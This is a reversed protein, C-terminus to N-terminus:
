AKRRLRTAFFGDMDHRHPWTFLGLPGLLPGWDIGGEGPSPLDLGFEPRDRLFAEVIAPGEAETITCVSYVLTGGPRVTDACRRIMVAQAAALEAVSEPTRRWRIEPHRRLTGLGSCPADLLVRDFTRELPERADHVATELGTVRGLTEALRRVKGPHADTSLLALRGAARTLDVIHQSKGGPAACADWLRDGPQPALLHVVLQAAEDQVRFLGEAFATTAFPARHELHWAGPAFVCPTLTAGEATLRAATAAPDVPARVTLPAPRNHAALLAEAEAPGLRDLALAALWDPHSLRVGVAEPTDGEPLTEPTQQLARLVANVLRAGGEGAVMRAQVVAEHVAARAPVRDMFGLQYAALRLVNLVAPATAELGRRLLPALRHDLRRQQRLVGSTLELALGRDRPDLGAKQAASELAQQLFAERADVARLTDLAVDRASGPRSV